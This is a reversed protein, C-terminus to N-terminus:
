FYTPANSYKCFISISSNVIEIISSLSINDICIFCIVLRICIIEAIISIRITIYM